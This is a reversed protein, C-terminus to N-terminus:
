DGCKQGERYPIRHCDLTVKMVKLLDIWPEVEMWGQLVPIRARTIVSTENLVPKGGSGCDDENEPSLNAERRFGSQPKWPGRRANLLPFLAGRHRRRRARAPGGHRSRLADGM